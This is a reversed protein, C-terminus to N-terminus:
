TLDPPYVLLTAGDVAAVAAERGAEIPAGGAYPRARWLEGNLRVRGGDDDVREVVLATSGALARPDTRAEDGAKTAIARQLPARAFVLLAVSGAGFVAAQVALGAGLLALLAAGLAAVGLLGLVFTLTLAEAVLLGAGAVLWLLDADM